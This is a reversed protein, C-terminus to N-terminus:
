KKEAHIIEVPLFPIGLIRISSTESRVVKVGTTGGIYSKIDLPRCHTYYGAFCFRSIAQLWRSGYCYKYIAAGMGFYWKQLRSLGSYDQTLVTIFLAGEPKLRAACEELLSRLRDAPQLDFLFSSVIIDQERLDDPLNYCNKHIIDCNKVGCEKLRQRAAEIMGRSYDVGIIKSQPFKMAMLSLLHGTGVGLELIKGQHGAAIMAEITKRNASREWWGMLLDYLSVNCRGIGLRATAVRDFEGALEDVDYYLVYDNGSANSSSASEAAIEAGSTVNYESSLFSEM